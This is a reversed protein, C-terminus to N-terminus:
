QQHPHAVDAYTIGKSKLIFDCLERVAGKGGTKDCIFNCVKKVEDVADNPCCRLGVRELVCIDPLDDGMYAVQTYDLNYKKMIEELAPVKYKQGMHLEKIDLIEARVKVTNNNRATIISTIIGARNLMVVGLGDKADYTKIEMGNETFTLSGDTMVGDVDFAVLKIDKAIARLEVDTM